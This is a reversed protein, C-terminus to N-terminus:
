RGTKKKIKQWKKIMRALAKDVKNDIIDSDRVASLTATGRWIAKKTATDWVDVVLTGKVYNTVTTTAYGSGGYGQYYPNWYWNSPYGYGWYTTDLRLEESGTAHYTVQLDADHDVQRLGTTTLQYEIANVIRSHLFPSREALSTEPTFAWQFTKAKSADYEPDFDIRVKEAEAPVGAVLGILIAAVILTVKPSM